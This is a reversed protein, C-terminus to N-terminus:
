RDTSEAGGTHSASVRSDRGSSRRETMRAKLHTQSNRARKELEVKPTAETKPISSHETVEMVKWHPLDHYRFKEYPLEGFSM